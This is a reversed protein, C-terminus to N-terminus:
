LVAGGDPDDPDDLYLPPPVDDPDPWLRLVLWGLGAAIAVLGLPLGYVQPVGVWGPFTVLVLGLGILTLGVLIPPGMRPLPPPDPPVFHEDAHPDAAAGARVPHGHEGNAGRRDAVDEAHPEAGGRPASGDGPHDHDTDDARGADRRDLDDDVHDDARGPEARGAASRVDTPDGPRGTDLPHGARGTDLPHGARSPDARATGFPPDARDPDARAAGFPPDAHDPDARPADTDSRSGTAGDPRDAAAPDAPADTDVDTDLGTRADPALEDLQPDDPWQPVNGEARWAAVIADFGTPDPERTV